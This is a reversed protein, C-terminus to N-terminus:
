LFKPEHEFYESRYKGDPGRTAKGSRRGEEYPNFEEDADEDTLNELEDDSSQTEAYANQGLNAARRRKRRGPQEIANDDDSIIETKIESKQVSNASATEPSSPAPVNPEDIVSNRESKLSVDINSTTDQSATESQQEVAEKKIKIRSLRKRENIEAWYFTFSFM